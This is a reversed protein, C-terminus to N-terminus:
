TLANEATKVVNFPKIKAVKPKDQMFIFTVFQDIAILLVILVALTPHNILLTITFINPKYNIKLNKM